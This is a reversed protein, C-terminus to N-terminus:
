PGAASSDLIRSPRQRALGRVYLPVCSQGLVLPECPPDGVRRVHFEDHVEVYRWALAREVLSSRETTRTAENDADAQPHLGGAINDVESMATNQQRRGEPIARATDVDEGTNM